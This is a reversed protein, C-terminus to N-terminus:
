FLLFHQILIVVGITRWWKQLFRLFDYLLQHTTTPSSKCMFSSFNILVCFKPTQQQFEQKKIAALLNGYCKQKWNTWTIKTPRNKRKLIRPIYVPTQLSNSFSLFQTTLLTQRSNSCPSERRVVVHSQFGLRGGMGSNEISIVLTKPKKM